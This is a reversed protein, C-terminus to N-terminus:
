RLDHGTAALHQLADAKGTNPMREPHSDYLVLRMKM